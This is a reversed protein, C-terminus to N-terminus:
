DLHYAKSVYKKALQAEPTSRDATLVEKYKKLAIDRKEIVDYMQGAALDSRQMLKKDVEPFKGVSDFAEAAEEFKRQGRLSIGLGYAVSQPECVPYKGEKCGELIKRFSAIAEPGRGAANLLHAYEVAGLYNKPYEDTMSKVVALAEPYKQERRLFLALAIKADMSASCKAGAVERLYQLGKQRSGTVGAIAVMSRYFWNLSGIIYNHVGVVMKADIYNPDLQLVKEHDRRASLASRIAPLWAKEGMGIFTSRMGREVGRAYLANVDNPNKALRTNCLAESRDLLEDIRKSVAPDLPRKPKIDMFSDNAYSESDLAGIRFMEKFTIATLLYNNAFPDEPYQRVLAEFEKISRDYEMNYFHEFGRKALPNQSSEISPAQAASSWLPLVSILLLVRFVYSVANRYPTM